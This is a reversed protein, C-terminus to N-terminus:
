LILNCKSPARINLAETERPTGTSLNTDLASLMDQQKDFPRDAGAPDFDFKFRDVEPCVVMQALSGKDRETKNEYVLTDVMLKWGSMDDKKFARVSDVRVYCNNVTHGGPVNVNMQLAM